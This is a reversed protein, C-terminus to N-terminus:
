LKKVVMTSLPMLTGPVDNLFTRKEELIFQHKQAFEFNAKGAKDTKLRARYEEYKALSEFSII